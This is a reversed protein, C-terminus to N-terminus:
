NRHTIPFIFYTCIKIQSKLFAQFVPLRQLIAATPLNANLIATLRFVKVMFLLALDNVYIVALFCIEEQKIDFNFLTVKQM